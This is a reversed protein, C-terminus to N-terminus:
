GLALTIKMLNNIIFSYVTLLCLPFHGTHSRNRIDNQNIGNVYITFFFYFICIFM